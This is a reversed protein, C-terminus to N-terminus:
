DIPVKEIIAVMGFIGANNGLTAPKIKMDRFSSMIHEKTRREVESVVYKESMIGGGLLICSPNLLHVLGILGCVIEDIWDNVIIIIESNGNYFGEFIERGNFYKEDYEMAKKVLATTSAYSEYCGNGGCNCLVGNAHTIMHGAEGAIGNGGRCIEGNLVIAGGIGTGYTLCIFNKEGKAAGFHYEGIAAANVDNEVYVNVGYKKEIIDRLLIGTYGPVNDSAYVIKGAASDVQGTTSIGIVDFNEYTDICNCINKLLIEGGDKGCSLIEKSCVITDNEILASKIATGGVDLALIKM